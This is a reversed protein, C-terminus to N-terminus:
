SVSVRIRELANQIRQLSQSKGMLYLTDDISPSITNGTLAVRLPQALEGMKVGLSTIAQQIILNINAKDWAISQLHVNMYDLIAVAEQTLYKQSAKDDYEPIEQYFIMSKDVMEKLTKCRNAQTQLIDILKPGHTVDVKALAFQQALTNLIKDQDTNQLYNQNLWLLKEPDFAAASKNLTSLEFWDIFQQRTFIEDNGHSWGLRALYNLMADPLYGQDRYELISLAGHRKSLKKMDPGLIMPLHAFEPPEIGLAYFINLQRPTNNIHDDGRIVHTIKMDIDDVVVTFNYTPFDDSRWLVLDDLENNNTTVKGRIHDNFSVLGDSPNKFRVVSDKTQAPLDKNRCCGDYRPKQKLSIQQERLKELREKSCICRYAYGTALLQNVIERYRDIRQSQYYPGLDYDLNLWALGELIMDVYRAESRAQDTDEIRLVFQGHHHKAYAWAFLATRASGLHLSGTPSPAFRTRVTM